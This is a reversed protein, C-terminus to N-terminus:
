CLLCSINERDDKTKIRRTKTYVLFTKKKFCLDFWLICLLVITLNFLNYLRNPIKLAILLIICIGSNANYLLVPSVASSEKKKFFVVCLQSNFIHFSNIFFLITYSYIMVAAASFPLNSIVFNLYYLIFRACFFSNLFVFHVSLIIIDLCGLHLFRYHLMLLKRLLLAMIVDNWEIENQLAVIILYLKIKFQSTKLISTM